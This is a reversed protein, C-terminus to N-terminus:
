AKSNSDTIAQSFFADSKSEEEKVIKADLMTEPVIM